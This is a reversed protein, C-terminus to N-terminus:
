AFRQAGSSWGALRSKIQGDSRRFSEADRTVVTMNIVTPQSARSAGAVKVGLDGSATRALPVAAEYGAEGAVGMRGGGYSFVTPGTAIGSPGFVDGSAHWSVGFPNAASAAVPVPSASKGGGLISGIFNTLFGGGGAQMFKALPGIIQSRIIIRNIEEVIAMGFDRWNAKGTTFFETFVDELGNFLNGFLQETQGAIDGAAQIYNAMARKYGNEWNAQEQRLRAYYTEHDALAQDLAAKIEMSETIYKDSGLLHEPTDRLLQAQRRQFERFISAQGGVMERDLDSRGFAGLQRDYQELRGERATAIEERIQAARQAFKEEAEAEKKQQDAIVKRIAVEQELAENTELQARIKDENALLSKQEATLTGKTKLDAIKQEFEVRARAAAGLREENDIQAQLAAGTERLSQLMRTAADDTYARGARGGREAYQKRLYERARKDLEADVTGGAALIKANREDLANLANALQQAKPLAREYLKANEKQADIGAKQADGARREEDARNKAADVAEQALRVVEQQRSIAGDIGFTFGWGNDRQNQLDALDAQARRLAAEPTDQRGIGRMSDWAEKAADKIGRWAREIYGLNQELQGSRSNMADAFAQQAAAAADAERGQEILATIQNYTALTLYRYSENLRESATLPDKGLEAFQKAADAISMGMNRAMNVVATGVQELSAGAVRGTSVLAALAEAAQAQTGVVGDISRAMEALQGANVGAANGTMVVARNFADAEQAGQNYAAILAGISAIGVGIAVRTLTFVSALAKAAPVIGGFSDKLQGGQQIAVLYAPQGSVLGTVIDTIQAPLLRMAQTTQKASMGLKGVAAESQRMRTIFPAAEQSIGLQQARYEFLGVRGREMEVTRRELSNLFRRGAQDMQGAAKEADQGADTLSKGMKGAASAVKRQAQETAQAAKAMSAELGSADGDIRVVGRAIEDAM